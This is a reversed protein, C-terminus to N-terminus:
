EEVGFIINMGINAGQILVATISLVINVIYIPKISCAILQVENSQFKKSLFWITRGQYKKFLKLYTNTSFIDTKMFLFLFVIFGISMVIGIGKLIYFVKIKDKFSEALIFCVSGALALIIGLLLYVSSNSLYLDTILVYILGTVLLTIGGIFFSLNKLLSKKM